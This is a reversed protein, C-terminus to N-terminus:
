FDQGDAGEPSAMRLLNQLVPDGHCMMKLKEMAEINKGGAEKFAGRSRDIFDQFSKPNTRSSLM